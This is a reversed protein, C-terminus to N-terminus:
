QQINFKIVSIINIIDKLKDIDNNSITFTIGITIIISLRISIAFTLGEFDIAICYDLEIVKV